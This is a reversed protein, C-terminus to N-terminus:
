PQSDERPEPPRNAERRESESIEAAATREWAVALASLLWPYPYYAVSLFTGAALYGVMATSLAVGYLATDRRLPVSANPHRGVRRRFRRVTSFHGVVISVFLVSGVLGGESLVTFYLSHAATMTWDRELYPASSLRGTGERPQYLGVNWNFNEFGVGVVPHDLWM